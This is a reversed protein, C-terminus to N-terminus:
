RRIPLAIARASRLRSQWDIDLKKSKSMNALLVSDYFRLCQTVPQKAFSHTTM